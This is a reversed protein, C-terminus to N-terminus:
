FFGESAIRLREHDGINRRRAVVVLVSEVRQFVRVPSLIQFGFHFSIYSYWYVVCRHNFFLTLMDIRQLAFNLAQSCLEGNGFLLEAAVGERCSGRGFSEIIVVEKQIHLLLDTILEVLFAVLM